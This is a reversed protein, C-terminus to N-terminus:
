LEQPLPPLEQSHMWEAAPREGDQIEQNNLYRVADRVQSRLSSLQRDAKRDCLMHCKHCRYTIGGGWISRKTMGFLLHM